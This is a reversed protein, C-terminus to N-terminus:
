QFEVTSVTFSCATLYDLVPQDLLWNYVPCDTNGALVDRISKPLQDSAPAFLPRLYHRLNDVSIRCINVLAYFEFLLEQFSPAFMVLVSVGTSARTSVEHVFVSYHDFAHRLHYLM